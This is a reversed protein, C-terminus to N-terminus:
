INDPSLRFQKKSIRNQKTSIVQFSQLRIQAYSMDICRQQKFNFRISILCYIPFAKMLILQYKFSKFREYQWSSIRDVWSFWCSLVVSDHIWKVKLMTSFLKIGRLNQFKTIVYINQLSMWWIEFQKCQFSLKLNQFIYNDSIMVALLLHNKLM